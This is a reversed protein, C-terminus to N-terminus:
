HQTDRSIRSNERTNVRVCKGPASGDGEAAGKRLEAGVQTHSTSTQLHQCGVLDHRVSNVGVAAEHKAGFLERSKEFLITSECLNLGQMDGLTCGVSAEIAWYM